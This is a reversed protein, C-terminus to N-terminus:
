RERDPEFGRVNLRIAFVIVIVDGLVFLACFSYWSSTKRKLNQNRLSLTKM